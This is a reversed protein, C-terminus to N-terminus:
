LPECRASSVGHRRCLEAVPSRGEAQKLAAIIQSDSFRSTKM